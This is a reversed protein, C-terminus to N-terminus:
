DMLRLVGHAGQYEVTLVFGSASSVDGPFYETATAVPYPKSNGGIIYKRGDATRFFFRCKSGTIDEPLRTIRATLKVTHIEARNEIKTEDTCDGLGILKLSSPKKKEGSAQHSTYNVILDPNFPSTYYGLEVINGYVTPNERIVRAEPM